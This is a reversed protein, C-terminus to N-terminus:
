FDELIRDANRNFNDQIGNNDFGNGEWQNRVHKYLRTRWNPDQIEGRANSNLMRMSGSGEADYFIFKVNKQGTIPFDYYVWVEFPATDPNNLQEVIDDPRGYKLYVYGRDSEFGYGFGSGYKQDVFKAIGMYKEYAAQPQNPSKTAWYRFLRLKMAKSDATRIIENLEKAEDGVMKCAIARLGYKLEEDKMAAVFEEEIAEKNIGEAAVNLYPNARQFPIEKKSLLLRERNRLEIVLKYNGSPLKTIDLQEIFIHPQSSPRLKKHGIALPITSAQASNNLISYSLAFADTLTNSQYIENYFYITTANKDYFLGALPEMLLGNKVYPHNTSDRAISKLLQIDSQQLKNEEFAVKIESSLIAPKSPYIMDTVQAELQYDGVPLAYRKIDFFDKPKAMIPSLLNYKDFQVIKDGQKFLLVVEISAQLRSSDPMGKFGITKGSINLYVEIYPQNEQLFTAYTVSVDIAKAKPLVILLGFLMMSFIRSM